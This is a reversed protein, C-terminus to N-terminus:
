KKAYVYIFSTEPIRPALFKFKLVYKDQKICELLDNPYFNNLEPIDQFLVLDYAGNEIKTCHKEYERDFFAVGQHFWLPQDMNSKLEYPVIEALQTLESMNLVSLSREKRSDALDCVQRIGSITEKPLKINKFVEIDPEVWDHRSFLKNDVQPLIYTNKSIATSDSKKFLPRVKNSLFRNWYTGSWWLAVLSTIIAFHWKNLQQNGILHSGLFIIFFSHFYINGDIPTYSTVQIVSAQFLIFGTLGIVLAKNLQLTRIDKYQASLTLIVAFLYFKIWYSAGLFENILDFFSVRSFHPPQGYNFWYSFEYQTFPGILAVLFAIYFTVFILIRQFTKSYIAEIALLFLCLLLTLGGTDQKTMFSFVSFFSALALFLITKNRALSFMAKLVFLIAIMEWVFVLHNYWPWFNVLTYSLVFILLGIVRSVNDIKLTKFIQAFVFNSVINIVVQAKILTYVGKGFILMFPALTVWLGYGVPSGFDRYPMQGSFVRFAGEWALFVNIRYPFMFFLPVLPTLFILGLELYFFYSKNSKWM